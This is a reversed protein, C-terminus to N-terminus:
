ARNDLPRTGRLTAACRLMELQTTHTFVQWIGNRGNRSHMLRQEEAVRRYDDPTWQKRFPWLLIPVFSGVPGRGNDSKAVCMIYTYADPVGSASGNDSDRRQEQISDPAPEVPSRNAKIERAYDYVKKLSPVRWDDCAKHRRVAETLTDLDFGERLRWHWDGVEIWGFNCKPWRAEVEKKFWDCFEKNSLM